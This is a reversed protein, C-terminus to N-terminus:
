GWAQPHNAVPYRVPDDFDASSFGAFLEPLRFHEFRMAAGLIGSIVRQAARDFGYRRFGAAIISNDHPWVTGLHYAIPNYRREKHSLTRIGWGCFMDEATLPEVVAKAKPDDIIGTWLAQGPNSS